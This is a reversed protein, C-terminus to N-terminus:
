AVRLAAQPRVPAAAARRAAARRAQRALREMHLVARWATRMLFVCAAALGLGLLPSLLGEIAAGACLLAGLGLFLVSLNLVSYRLTRKM